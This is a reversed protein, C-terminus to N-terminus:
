GLRRALEDTLRQLATEMVRAEDASLVTFLRAVAARHTDMEDSVRRRGAATLDVITVRRDAPDAFRDVLGQAELADIMVSINQPTVNLTRTLARMPQPGGEFLAALVKLRPYSVEGSPLNHGVWRMYLPGFRELLGVLADHRAKAM